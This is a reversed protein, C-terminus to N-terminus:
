VTRDACKNSFAFVELKLSSFYYFTAKKPTKYIYLSFDWIKLLKNVSYQTLFWAKHTQKRECKVCRETLACHDTCVIYNDPFM